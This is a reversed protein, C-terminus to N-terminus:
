DLEDEEHPCDRRGDCFASLPVAQPKWPNCRFYDLPDPLPDKGEDEGEDCEEKGDKVNVLPTCFSNSCKVNGKPCKFTECGSLHQFDRCGIIQGFLDTALVCEPARKGVFSIHEHRVRCKFTELAGLTEDLPCEPGVCDVISNNLMEKTVCKTRNCVFVCTDGPHAAADGDDGDRCDMQGDHFWPKPLCQGSM